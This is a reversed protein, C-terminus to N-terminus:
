RDGAGYDFTIESHRISVGHGLRAEYNLQGPDVLLNETAIRGTEGVALHSTAKLDCDSVFFHYGYFCCYGIENRDNYLNVIQIHSEVKLELGLGVYMYFYIKRDPDLNYAFRVFSTSVELNDTARVNCYTKAIWRSILNGDVYVRQPGKWLENKQTVQFSSMEVIADRLRKAESDLPSLQENHKKCLINAAASGVPISKRNHPCFKFGKVQLSPGPM